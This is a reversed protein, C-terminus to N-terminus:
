RDGLVCEWHTGGSGGDGGTGLYAPVATQRGSAASRDPRAVPGNRRQCSIGSASRGYHLRRHGGHSVRVVWPLRRDGAGLGLMEVAGELPQAGGEAPLGVTEVRGTQVGTDARGRQREAAQELVQRRHLVIVDGGLQVPFRDACRPVRGAPVTVVVPLEVGGRGVSRVLEVRPPVTGDFPGAGPERRGQGFASEVLERPDRHRVAAAGAQAPQDAVQDLLVPPVRAV